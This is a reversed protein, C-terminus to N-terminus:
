KNNGFLEFNNQCWLKVSELLTEIDSNNEIVTDFNSIWAWESSHIGIEIMKNLAEENGLNAQLATEYWYPDNGRAVRIVKGGLSQILKIENPFRVDTIVVPKSNNLLKQEVSYIWIKDDLGQRIVETGMYQLAWRPTVDKGLKNSWWDDKRERFDRSEQTDGELLYRPWGFISSTADKLSSAFSIQEFGLNNKLYTGITDKGSGAFGVVGIITNM